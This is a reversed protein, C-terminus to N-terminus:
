NIILKDTAIVEYGGGGISRNPCAQTGGGSSSPNISLRIFYLGSPLNDRTLTVTQGNINKIQKVVQGFSNYVTLTANTLYNDTHLTTQSSFPNPFLIISNEINNENVTMYADVFFNDIYLNNECDTTYRFKFLVSQGSWQMLPPGIYTQAWDSFKPVFENTDFSPIGTVLQAAYQKWISSWTSGCDASIFLELTDMYVPNLVPDTYKKDAYSFSVEPYTGLVVPPSIIEDVQGKASINYHFNDMYLSYKDVTDVFMTDWTISSDYNIIQWGEPPFVSVNFNEPMQLDYPYFFTSVSTDNASNMDNGSNPNSSYCTFTHSSGPFTNMYNLTVNVAQNALLSGNWNYTQLPNNDFRYNIVCSLLTTPGFNKLVVNPYFGTPQSCINGNPILIGTIGIDISAFLFNTHATTLTFAITLGLLIKKM